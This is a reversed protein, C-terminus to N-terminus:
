GNHADQRIMQDLPQWADNNTGLLTRLEDLITVSAHDAAQQQRVAELERRLTDLERAQSAIRAEAKALRTTQDTHQAHLGHFQAELQQLTESETMPREGTTTMMLHQWDHRAQTRSLGHALLAAVMKNRGPTTGLP